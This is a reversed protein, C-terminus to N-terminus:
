RSFVSFFFFFAGISSPMKPATLNNKRPPTGYRKCPTLICAVTALAGRRQLNALICFVTSLECHSRAAEEVKEINWLVAEGLWLLTNKALFLNRFIARGFLPFHSGKAVNIRCSHFTVSLLDMQPTIGLGRFPFADSLNEINGYLRPKFLGNRIKPGRARQHRINQHNENEAVNHGINQRNEHLYMDTKDM